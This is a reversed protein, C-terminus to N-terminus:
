RGDKRESGKERRRRAWFRVGWESEPNERYGGGWGRLYVKPVKRAKRFM